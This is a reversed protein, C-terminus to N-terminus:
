HRKRVWLRAGDDEIDVGARDAIDGLARGWPMDHYHVELRGTVAPEVVVHRGSLQGLKDMLAAVGISKYDLDVTTRALVAASLGQTAASAANSSAPASAARLGQLCPADRYVVQGDATTCRFAQARASTNGLLVVFALLAVRSALRANLSRNGRGRNEM